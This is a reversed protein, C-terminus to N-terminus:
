PQVGIVLADGVMEVFKIEARENQFHVGHQKELYRVVDWAIKNRIEDLDQQVTSM